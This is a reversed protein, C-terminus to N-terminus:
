PLQPYLCILQSTIRRNQSLSIFCRSYSNCVGSVGEAYVRPTDMVDILGPVGQPQLESEHALSNHNSPFSSISVAMNMKRVHGKSSKTALRLQLIHHTLAGLLQALILERKYTGSGSYVLYMSIQYPTQIKQDQSEFLWYKMSTM